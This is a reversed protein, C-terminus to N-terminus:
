SEPMSVGVYSPLLLAGKLGGSTAILICFIDELPTSFMDIFQLSFEVVSQLNSKIFPNFITM